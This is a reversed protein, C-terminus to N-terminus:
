DFLIDPHREAPSLWHLHFIHLLIRKKMGWASHCTGILHESPKMVFNIYDDVKVMIEKSIFDSRHDDFDNNGFPKFPNYDIQQISDPFSDNPFDVEITADPDILHAFREIAEKAYTLVEFFPPIVRYGRELLKNKVELPFGDLEHANSTIKERVAIIIDTDKGVKIIRMNLCYLTTLLLILRQDGDDRLLGGDKVRILAESRTIEKEVKKM